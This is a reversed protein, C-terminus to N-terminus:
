SYLNTFNNSTFEFAIMEESKHAKPIPCNSFMQEMHTVVASMGDLSTGMSPHNESCSNWTLLVVSM